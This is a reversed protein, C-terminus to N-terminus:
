NCNGLNTPSSQTARTRSIVRGSNFYYMQEGMAGISPGSVTNVNPSGPSSTAYWFVRMWSDPLNIGIQRMTEVVMTGCNRIYLDYNQGNYSSIYALMKAVEAGNVSFGVQVDVGGSYQSDDNFASPVNPRFPNGGGDPYFGISRRIVSGDSNTQEFTLFAHGVKHKDGALFSIISPSGADPQDM